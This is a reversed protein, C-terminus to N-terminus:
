PTRTSRSSSRVSASRSASAWSPGLKTSMMYAGIATGRREETFNSRIYRMASPTLVAEGIGVLMRLILFLELASALGTAASALSWLVFGGLLLGRVGYRDAILGAAILAASHTWHFSSLLMGQDADGWGFESAMSPIAISLDARNLQGVLMAASFLGVMQWRRDAFPSEAPRSM